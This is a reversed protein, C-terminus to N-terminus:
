HKFLKAMKRRRNVCFSIFHCMASLLFNKITLMLYRKRSITLGM